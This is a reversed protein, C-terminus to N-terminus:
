SPPQTKTVPNVIEGDVIEVPEEAKSARAKRLARIKAGVAASTAGVALAAIVPKWPFENEETEPEDTVDEVPTDNYDEM